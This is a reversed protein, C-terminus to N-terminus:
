KKKKSFDDDGPEDTAKKKKKKEPDDPDFEDIMLGHGEVDPDDRDGRRKLMEDGSM